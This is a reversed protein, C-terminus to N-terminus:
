TGRIKAITLGNGAKFMVGRLRELRLSSLNVLASTEIGSHASVQPYPSQEQSDDLYLVGLCM